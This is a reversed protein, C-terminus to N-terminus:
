PLTLIGVRALGARQTAALAQAVPEYRADRDASIRIEPPVPAQAAAALRRELGAADVVEDNWRLGGSADIVVTVAQPEAAAPASSAQPLRVKVAHTLVPMTVMFIILLVLMVDVLPTMNIESMVEDDSDFDGSGFAM